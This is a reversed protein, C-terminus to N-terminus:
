AKDCQVDGLRERRVSGMGVSFLFFIAPEGSYRELLGRM